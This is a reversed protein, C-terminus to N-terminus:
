GLYRNGNEDCMRALHYQAESHGHDVAKRYWFAAEANDSIDYGSNADYLVALNFQAEVHGQEAAKRFWNAARSYNPPVGEGNEYLLGLNFQAEADGQSARSFLLTAQAQEDDKPMPGKTEPKREEFNRFERAEQWDGFKSILWELDKGAPKALLGIAVMDGFALIGLLDPHRQWGVDFLLIPHIWGNVFLVAWFLVSAIALVTALLLRFLHRLDQKSM